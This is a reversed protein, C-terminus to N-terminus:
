MSDDPPHTPAFQQSVRRRDARHEVPQKMVPVNQLAVTPQKSYSMVASFHKIFSNTKSAAIAYTFSLQRVCFAGPDSCDRHPRM